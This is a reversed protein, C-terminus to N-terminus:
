YEIWHAWAACLTVLIGGHVDMRKAGCKKMGDEQNEDQGACRFRPGHFADRGIWQFFEVQPDIDQSAFRIVGSRGSQGFLVQGPFRQVDLQSEPRPHDGFRYSCPGRPIRCTNM